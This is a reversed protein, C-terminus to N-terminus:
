IHTHTHAHVLTKIAASSTSPQLLTVRSTTERLMWLLVNITVNEGILLSLHFGSTSHFGPRWSFLTKVFGEIKNGTAVTLLWLKALVSCICLYVCQMCLCAVSVCSLICLSSHWFSFSLFLSLHTKSVPCYVPSAWVVCGM